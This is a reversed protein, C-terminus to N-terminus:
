RESVNIKAATDVDAKFAYNGELFQQVYWRMAASSTMYMDLQTTCAMLRGLMDLQSQTEEAPAKKFWANVLDNRRDVLFGYHSLCADIFCARLNRRYPTAGGGAFRFSIYNHSAIDSLCADVLTFHYALRSNLNMYEKAVLLYSRDGLARMAGSQTLTNAMVSAMDSFSAPMERQWSVGPHTLWRWLAQFPASVIEAPAVETAAPDALALGGGLDLVYINVPVPTMLRKSAAIDGELVSDNVAFMAEIAKEHCFRLVDHASKCGSPRFRSGLPDLLHLALLRRSIPDDEGAKEGYRQAINAEIARPPWLSGPYIRPQVADLSVADGRKLRDFIGSMGFVSPIKAERLLSAAHGAVNGLEAVVGSVRPFVTVMEPSAKRLFLIAGEPTDSLSKLDGALFVPGSVRGPYVTSGGALLPEGKARVKSRLQPSEALALTRAQVIWAQGREDWAWEIDQPAGFHKEIRLAWDALLALEKENLSPATAEEPLTPQRLIGGEPALVVQETKPVINQELVRHPWKRELVFLDAPVQGSAIDVGFGRTATIWLADLKPDKPDRTYIIGASSARVVGLCLVAMPSDIEPLGASLRYFLARESFRGAVVRKYANVVQDVPVNLISIFQGAFTKEGGEGVASSRVAVALGARQLALARETLAVEIARPIPASMVLETLHASVKRLLALDNLDLNRTADRIQQWLPIGCFDRYAQATLVFGDPVPLTLKNKIEGLVAAKAGVAGASSADVESLSASFNQPRLELKALYHEVEQRQATVADLLAGHDYGTLRELAAVVEAAKRFVSEVRESLLDSTPRTFQLDEQIGALLELCDNNLALLERFAAYRVRVREQVSGAPEAPAKKKRWWGFM